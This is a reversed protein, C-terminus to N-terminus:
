PARPACRIGQRYYILSTLGSPEPLMTMETACTPLLFSTKLRGFLLLLLFFVNLFNLQYFGLQINTLHMLALIQM